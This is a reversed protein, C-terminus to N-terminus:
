RGGLFVVKRAQTVDGATLKVFYTGGSVRLGTGDRGDWTVTQRGQPWEDDTIMRVLRGTVDYIGLNVPSPRPLAFGITTSRGFPNPHSASLQVGGDTDDPTKPVPQWKGGDTFPGGRTDLMAMIDEAAAILTDADADDIHHGRQANVQNAFARLLRSAAHENGRDVALGAADLKTLFAHELGAPLGLSTVFSILEVLMETPTVVEDCHVALVQLGTAGAAVYAYGGSVASVRSYGPTFVRAIFAPFAPNSIDVVALGSIENGVYAYRDAVTVSQASGTKSGGVIWPSAPDSVDVVQLGSTHDAVYVYRGSVAVGRAQGPTDVSGTIWPSTPDSIEVVQLGSHSDAVYAHNGSVVVSWADDPTDVSGVITPFAPDSISVV